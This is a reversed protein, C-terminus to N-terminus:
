FDILDMTEFLEAMPVSADALDRYTHVKQQPGTRRIRGRYLDIVHTSLAKQLYRRFRYDCVEIDRPIKGERLLDWLKISFVQYLDDRDYGKLKGENNRCMFIITPEVARLVNDFNELTLPEHWGTM